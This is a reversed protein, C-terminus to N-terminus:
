ADKDGKLFLNVYSKSIEYLAPLTLKKLRQKVRTCAHVMRELKASYEVRELVIKEENLPKFKIFFLPDGRNIVIPKTFDKVIFSFDVPRIWKGIDLSAPVFMTNEVSPSNLLFVPLVEMELSEETYFILSPPLAITGDPRIFCFNNYFEQDWGHGETRMNFVGNDNNVFITGSMPATVVYTNRCFDQMSPCKLLLLDKHTQILEKSLPKPESVIINIEHMVAKNDKHTLASWYVTAM